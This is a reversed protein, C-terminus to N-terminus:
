KPCAQSSCATVEAGCKSITCSQCASAGSACETSCQQRACGFLPLVADVAGDCAAAVCREWCPGVIVGTPTHVPADSAPCAQLCSVTALCASTGFGSVSYGYCEEFAETQKPYYLGALVCMESTQANPGQFVETADTNDYDCQFRVDSGQPWTMPGMFEVPHQWDDTTFFPTTARATASPDLWVKMDTGRYHYHTFATLVTVDVPVHCWGGSSATAHAPVDIFPDYFVFFGGQTQVKDATTTDLGVQVTTAIPKATANLYHTNMILVGGAPLTAAVGAPFPYDGTPTQAGYVIGVAHQMIPESGLTCDYQGTLNSPIATLDTRYLLFHHSGPTYQHAFGTVNVDAGTPLQVLQCQHLETSAPVTLTMTFVVDHHFGEGGDGADASVPTSAHGSSSSSCAGLGLLAVLALAHGVAVFRSM